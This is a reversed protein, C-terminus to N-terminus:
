LDYKNLKHDMAQQLLLPDNNKLKALDLLAWGWGAYTSARHAQSEVKTASEFRAIAKGYSELKAPLDETAQAQMVLCKALTGPLATSSQSTACFANNSRYM